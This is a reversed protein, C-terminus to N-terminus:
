FHRAGGFRRQSSLSLDPEAAEEREGEEEEEEAEAEEQAAGPLSRTREGM